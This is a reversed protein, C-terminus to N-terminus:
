AKLEKVNRDKRQLDTIKRDKRDALPYKKTQGTGAKFLLTQMLTQHRILTKSTKLSM